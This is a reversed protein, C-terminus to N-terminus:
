DGNKGFKRFAQILQYIGYSILIKGLLLFLLPFFYKEADEIPSKLFMLPNIFKLYYVLFEEVTNPFESSVVSKISILYSILYFLYSVFSTLLIFKLAKVWDLGNSSSFSNLNLIFDDKWSKGKEKKYAELEYAKFRLYDIQNHTNILERKIARLTKRDWNEIAEIKYMNLDDFYASELFSVQHIKFDNVNLKNFSAKREFHSHLIELKFLSSDDFLVYKNFRSSIINLNSKNIFKIKEFWVTENFDCNDFCLLGIISIENFNVKNFVCKYFISFEKAYQKKAEVLYNFTTGIFLVFSNFENKNFHANSIKSNTFYSSLGNIQGFKSETVVFSGFDHIINEFSFVKLTTLNRFEFETSLRPKDKLNYDNIFQFSGIENIGGYGSNIILSKIRTTNKFSLEDISSNQIIVGCNFECNRFEIKVDSDINLIYLCDCNFVCNEFFYWGQRLNIIKLDTDFNFTTNKFSGRTDLLNDFTQKERIENM